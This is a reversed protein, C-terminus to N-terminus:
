PHAHKTPSFLQVLGLPPTYSFNPFLLLQNNQHHNFLTEKTFNFDSLKNLRHTPINMTNNFHLSISYIKSM